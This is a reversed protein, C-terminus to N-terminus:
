PPEGLADLLARVAGGPDQARWVAGIVAVGHAGADLLEPVRDVTVGSIAIVPVDVAAAVAAVRQPGGPEPLGDKSATPYCPGVGLYDVGAAVLRRATDPDRATGGVLHRRGDVDLLRRAVDVPLDDAGLHVGDAEAALALDVRDNVLCIAGAARARNAAHRALDLAERDTGTTVRVQLLPAGADLVADIADAAATGVGGDSIVHLRPVVRVGIDSGQLSPWSAM